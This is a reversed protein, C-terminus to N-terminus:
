ITSEESDRGRGESESSDIEFSDPGKCSVGLCSGVRAGTVAVEFSASDVRLESIGVGVGSFGMRRSVAAVAALFPAPASDGASMVGVCDFTETGAIFLTAVSSSFVSLTGEVLSSADLSVLPFFSVSAPRRLVIFLSPLTILLVILLL